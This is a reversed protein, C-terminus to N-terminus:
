EFRMVSRVVVVGHRECIARLEAVREPAIKASSVIV